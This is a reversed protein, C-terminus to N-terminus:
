IKCVSSKDQDSEKNDECLNNERSSFFVSESRRSSESTVKLNKVIELNEGIATFWCVIEAPQDFSKISDSSFWLGDEEQISLFYNIIKLIAELYRDEKTELYLESLAWALKHSFECSFVSTNCTLAFDTYEKSAVLYKEDGTARYLKVLYVIPYSIMFYLQDPEAKSVLHILSAESTFDTICKGSSNARLYFGINLNPQAKLIDCLYDGAKNAQTQYQAELCVLGLHATTIVDMVGDHQDISHTYFGGLSSDQYSLLYQMAIDAVDSRAIKNAARVIWGNVYTYFEDYAQNSSKPLGPTEPKFDGNSRLWTASIYNLLKNTNEINGVMEWMLPHKYYVALDIPQSSYNDGTLKSTFANIAREKSAKLNALLEILM